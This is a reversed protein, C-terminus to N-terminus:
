KIRKDTIRSVSQTLSSHSFINRFSTAEEEEERSKVGPVRPRRLNDCHPLWRHSVQNSLNAGSDALNSTCISCFFRPPGRHCVTRPFRRVKEGTVRFPRGFSTFTRWCKDSQQGTNKVEEGNGDKTFIINEIGRLFPPSLSREPRDLLKYLIDFFILRM